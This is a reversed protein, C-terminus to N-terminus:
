GHGQGRHSRGARQAVPELLPEVIGPILRPRFAPSVLARNIKHEPGFMAQINRGMVESTVAGYFAASPFTEEDRLAADVLEHSCLLLTKQGFSRVWAAPHEARIQHLLAPLDHVDDLALDVDFDLVAPDMLTM